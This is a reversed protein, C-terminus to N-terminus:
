VLNFLSKMDEFTLKNSQNGRRVGNLVSEAIELKRAQLQHIRSEVTEECLFKHITVEKTQGVRYIRDCAQSELQPNWHMDLMFLHNAGVLNLGVGGAALSLLMVHPKRNKRNFNEVIEARDKVPVKGNIECTKLGMSHIHERVIALMSTWQSVIVAKEMERTEDFREKLIRLESLVKLIKSSEREPKFVPNKLNLVSKKLHDEATEPKSGPAISLDALQSVLDIDDGEEDIGEAAKSDSDLMTKILGPHSCIQRLRLLLVLIHHAKVDKVVSFKSSIAGPPAVGPEKAEMHEEPRFKFDQGSGTQTVHAVYRDDDDKDRHKNMYNIMAQQSFSFVEDYVKKEDEGLKIKHEVVSRNPLDVIANGTVNSKQDKTRRLTLAKVLIDMRSRGQASKNDVWTKWTRYEDFPDLRIFRLLSYLDTERNQIPTGTIAWRRGAKLRCVSLTTQSRPNRIQHAEDLIIREWAVSLLKVNRNESADMNKASKMNELKEKEAGKALVVKIENMVTSYTSIVVDYRALSRVSQNRSSGHYVLVSLQDSKVKNKIEGEWQGLLSAPCIVLTAHSQILGKGHKNFWEEEEKKYDRNESLEKHKLILAIMTLTKGLGMDDALIGGPPDQTERWLLWALAQKQHPFLKVSSKLGQPDMEEDGEMPMCKMSTHITKLTDTIKQAAEAHRFANMRGGYLNGRAPDNAWLHAQQYALSVGNGLNERAKQWNENHVPAAPLFDIMKTQSTSRALGSASPMAREGHAKEAAYRTALIGELRNVQARVRSIESKLSQGQDVLSEIRVTSFQQILIRHKKRAAELELQVESFSPGDKPSAESRPGAQSVPPGTDAPAHSGHGTPSVNARAVQFEESLSSHEAELKQITAMLKQGRDPLLRAKTRYLGRNQELLRQKAALRSALTQVEGPSYTRSDPTIEDEDSSLEIVPTVESESEETLNDEDDTILAQVDTESADSSDEDDTILIARRHAPIKRVSKPAVIPSFDDDESILAEVRAGRSAPDRTPTMEIIDDSEDIVHPAASDEDDSSSSDLVRTRPGPARHHSWTPDVCASPATVGNRTGPTAPPTEYFLDDSSDLVSRSSAM